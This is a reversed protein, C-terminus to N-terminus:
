RAPSVPEFRLQRIVAGILQRPRADHRLVLNFTQAIRWAAKNRMRPLVRLAEACLVEDTGNGCLEELLDATM